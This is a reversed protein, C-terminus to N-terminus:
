CRGSMSPTAPFHHTILASPKGYLIKHATYGVSTGLKHWGTLPHSDAELEQLHEVRVLLANASGCDVGKAVDSFGDAGLVNQDSQQVVQLDLLALVADARRNGDGDHGLRARREGYQRRQHVLVPHTVNRITRVCESDGLSSISGTSPQLAGGRCTGSSFTWFPTRLASDKTKSYM